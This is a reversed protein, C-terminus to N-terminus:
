NHEDLAQIADALTDGLFSRIQDETPEVNEDLKHYKRVRVLFEDSVDLKLHVGHSAEFEYSKALM